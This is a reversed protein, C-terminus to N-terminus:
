RCSFGWVSRRRGLAVAHSQQVSNGVTDSVGVLRHAADYTYHTLAGDPASSSILQGLKDYAYESHESSGDRGTLTATAIGGSRDYTLTLATGDARKIYLPKGDPTYSLYHM